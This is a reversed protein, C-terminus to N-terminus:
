PQVYNRESTVHPGRRQVSDQLKKVKETARKSSLLHHTLFEDLHEEL